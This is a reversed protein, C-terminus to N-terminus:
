KERRIEFIISVAQGWVLTILIIKLLHVIAILHNEM